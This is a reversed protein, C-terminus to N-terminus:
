ERPEDILPAGGGIGSREVGPGPEIPRCPLKLLTEESKGSCGVSRAGVNALTPRRSEAPLLLSNYSFIIFFNLLRYENLKLRVFMLRNLISYAVQVAFGFMPLRLHPLYLSSNAYSKERKNCKQHQNSQM